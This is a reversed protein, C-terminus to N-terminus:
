PSVVRATTGPFGSPIPHDAAGNTMHFAPGSAQYVGPQDSGYSEFTLMIQGVRQLRRQEASRKFAQFVAWREDFQKPGRYVEPLHVAVIAPKEGSLQAAASQVTKFFSQVPKDSKRSYAVLVLSVHAPDARPPQSVYAVHAYPHTRYIENILQESSRPSWAVPKPGLFEALLTYSNGVVGRERGSLVLGVASDCIASIDEHRLRDQCVLTLAVAPFRPAQFRSSLADLLWAFVPNHIRRGTWPYTYKCEAELQVGNATLEIDWGPLCLPSRLEVDAGHLHFHRAIRFEYLCHMVKSRNKLRRALYRHRSGSPGDDWSERFTLINDADAALQALGPSVTVPRGAELEQRLDLYESFQPALPHLAAAFCARQLADAAQRMRWRYFSATDLVFKRGLLDELDRIKLFGEEVPVGQLGNETM